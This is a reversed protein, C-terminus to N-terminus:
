SGVADMENIQLRDIKHFARNVHTGAGCKLQEAVGLAGPAPEGEEAEKGQGEGVVAVVEDGLISM